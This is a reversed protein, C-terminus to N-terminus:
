DGVIVCFSYFYVLFDRRLSVLNNVVWDLDLGIVM